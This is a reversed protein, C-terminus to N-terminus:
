DVMFHNRVDHGNGTKWRILGIVRSGSENFFPTDSRRRM